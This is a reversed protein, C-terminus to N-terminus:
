SRVRECAETLVTRLTTGIQEFQEPGCILPPALQIVPDGRDDTRCILGAEFLRGALFGRLLAEGEEPTFREGTANDKVLEIAHFYGVGRVYGVLPIDRLGDLRARLDGEHSRVRGLLDEKEFIDLNALAVACSVPHGAFTFGHNFSAKGELFPEVLRDSALMAGLPSYGSTLGKACTIIDPQYGYRECGFM